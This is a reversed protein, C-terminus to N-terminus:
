CPVKKYTKFEKKILGAKKWRCIIVPTSTQTCTRLRAAEVDASTFVDPLSAFLDKKVTCRTSTQEKVMEGYLAILHNLDHEGWWLCFDIITQRCLDDLQGCYCGYCVMAMRFMKVAERKRFHDLATDSTRLAVLRKEELWQQLPAYMFLMDDTIDRRSLTHESGDPLTRYTLTDAYDLVRGIEDQEEQTLEGWVPISAFEQNEIPCLSLRSILGNEPNAYFKMVQEPTGTALINLYLNVRGSFTSDSMYDQSYSANDWANRYMDGKDNYSGGKNGKNLTDIEEVFCLQHLGGADQQRTLLKPQSIIGSIIRLPLAPKEPQQKSNKAKRCAELYVQELALTEEDRRRLHATLMDLTRRAFSKGCSAPAYIVNHVTPTHYFGDLYRAQLNTFLTALAAEAAYVQPLVFDRPSIRALASLVPIPAEGGAREQFLPLGGETTNATTNTSNDAPKLEGGKLSPNPTPEKRGRRLAAPLTDENESESENEELVDAGGDEQWPHPTHGEHLFEWFAKPISGGTPRSCAHRCEAEREGRSLGFTPLENLLVEQSSDTIYKFNACMRYYYTHRTGPEPQGYREVYAEAWSRITRGKYSAGGLDEGTPLVQPNACSTGNGELPETVGEREPSPQPSAENGKLPETAGEKPLPNPSAEKPSAGWVDEAGFVAQEDIYFFYTVPVLYSFRALDKCAMDLHDALSGGEQGDLDALMQKFQSLCQEISEGQGRRLVLRLGERSPTMHAVLIGLEDKRDKLLDWVEAPDGIHDLDAMWAGNPVAKTALRRGEPFHAQWTVGPLRRKLRQREDGEARAIAEYLPMLTDDCTKAYFLEESCLRGQSRVTDFLSFQM